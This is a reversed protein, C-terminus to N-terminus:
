RETYTTLCVALWIAAQKFLYFFVDANKLQCQSDDTLFNCSTLCCAVQEFFQLEFVFFDVKEENLEDDFNM